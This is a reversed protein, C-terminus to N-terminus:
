PQMVAEAACIGLDCFRTLAQNGKAAKSACLVLFACAAMDPVDIAALSETGVISLCVGTPIPSATM